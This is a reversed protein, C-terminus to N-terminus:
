KERDTTMCSCNPCLIIGKLKDIEAVKTKEILQCSLHFLLCNVRSVTVRSNTNQNPIENGKKLFQSASCVQLSNKDKILFVSYVFIEPLRMDGRCRRLISHLVDAHM